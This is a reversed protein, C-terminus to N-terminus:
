LAPATTATGAAPCNNPCDTCGTGRGMGRGHGMGGGMFDGGMFCDALTPSIKKLNLQHQLKKQAMQAMIDTMEKQIAAAKQADTDTKTMEAKLDLHKQQIQDRLAQTDKLFADREATVKAQDEASLNKIAACGGKGMPPVQGGNGKMGMGAFSYTGFGILVAMVTIVIM